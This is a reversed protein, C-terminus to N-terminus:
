PTKPTLGNVKAPKKLGRPDIATLDYKREVDLGTFTVEGTTADSYKEQIIIGTNSESLRVLSRTQESLSPTSVVARIYGPGNFGFIYTQVPDHIIKADQATFTPYVPFSVRIPQNQLNAVSPMEARALSFPEYNSSWDRHVRPHRTLKVDCIWGRFPNNGVVDCGITFHGTAHKYESQYGVIRRDGSLSSSTWYNNYGDLFTKTTRHQYASSAVVPNGSHDRGGYNFNTTFNDDALYTCAAGYDVPSRWDWLFRQGGIVEPIFLFEIMYSCQNPYFLKQDIVTLKGGAAGFYAANGFIPADSVIMVDGEATVSLNNRSHDLLDERLPLWLDATRLTFDLYSM